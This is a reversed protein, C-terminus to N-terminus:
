TLEFYAKYWGAFKEVGQQISTSPKYDFQEILDDVDAYTSEVDGPQIPLLEKQATRGLATELAEIYDLLEVPNSNGINYIRYPASSTAPDPKCGDWQRNPLAPRDLVRMIGEVIDDIYTFDRKHKGYHFVKIQEGNMISRAFKQLAM